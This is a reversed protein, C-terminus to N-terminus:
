QLSPSICALVVTKANGGLSDQLMVFAPLRAVVIPLTHSISPGEKGGENCYLMCSSVPCLPFCANAPLCVQLLFTLRSDRYPIHKRKQESGAESLINIVHSCCRRLMLHLSPNQVSLRQDTWSRRADEDISAWM